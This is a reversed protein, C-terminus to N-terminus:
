QNDRHTARAAPQSGSELPAAGSAAVESAIDRMLHTAGARMASYLPLDPSPRTSAAPNEFMHEGGARMPVSGDTGHEFVGRRVACPLDTRRTPPGRALDGAVITAIYHDVGRAPVAAVVGPQLLQQSRGLVLQDREGVPDVGALEDIRGLDTGGGIPDQAVAPQGPAEGGRDGGVVEHPVVVM